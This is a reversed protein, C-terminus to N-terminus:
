KSQISTIVNGRPRVVPVWGGLTQSPHHRIVPYQCNPHLRPFPSEQVLHIRPITVVRVRAGEGSM